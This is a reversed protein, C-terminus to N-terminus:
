GAPVRTGRSNLKGISATLGDHAQQVAAAPESRGAAHLVNILTTLVADLEATLVHDGLASLIRLILDEARRQQPPDLRDFLVTIARVVEAYSQAQMSESSVVALDEFAAMLQEPVDDHYVVPGPPADNPHATAHQFSWRALLDRLTVIALVGPAPSQKSTSISTWAIDVLQRIGYAPDADIDRIRDLVLARGVVAGLDSPSAGPHTKVQAIVDGFSVYSGVSVCLVIEVRDDTDGAAATLADLDVQVLFGNETATVPVGAAAPWRSARRTRTVLDLQRARAALTLGEITDVISAPRIQTITNYILFLLLYLAVVSLVLVVSASLVPNFAPQVTALVIISYLTLGVFFGFLLQNLKRRLFQGIVQHTMSSAAQQVALLVVSFTISTLTILGAALAALLRSTAEATGFVLESLAHRLSVAWSVGATDVWLTVAALLLFLAIVATPLGLFEGFSRRVRGFVPGGTPKAPDGQEQM